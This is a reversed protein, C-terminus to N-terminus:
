AVRCRSSTLEKEFEDSAYVRVLVAKRSGDAVGEM